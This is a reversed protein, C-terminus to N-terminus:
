LGLSEPTFAQRGREIGPEAAGAEGYGSMAIIRLSPKEQRLQKALEARENRRAVRMTLWSILNAATIRGVGSDSRHRHPAERVKYGLRSLFLSVFTRMGQDDEVLLIRELVAKSRLRPRTGVAYRSARRRQRAIWECVLAARLCRRRMRAAACSNSSTAAVAALGLGHDAREEREVAPDAAAALDDPSFGGGTHAVILRVFLRANDLQVQSM